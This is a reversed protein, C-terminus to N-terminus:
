NKDGLVSDYIDSIKKGVAKNSFNAEAYDRLYTKDFNQHNDLMWDIKDVLMNVDKPETLLGLNDNMHEKIGGVDSSLVPIGCSFCELNVVPLNEYNSFLLHFASTSIERVLEEGELLGMFDVIEEIGFQKAKEKLMMFDPADGVIKLYFDKRKRSLIQVAKLIGSINKVEDNTCSIHIIPIKDQKKQAIKLIGSNFTDTDVVNPVIIYNNNYLKCKKMSESLQMTVPMVASANRVILKTIFKRMIGKFKGVQYRSWHETIVYNVNYRIKYLYAIFGERTLVNVHILDPKFDFENRLLKFALYHAKFFQYFMLIKLVGNYKEYYVKVEPFDTHTIEYEIGSKVNEDSHVYISAVNHYLNVALAHRRIFLGSM